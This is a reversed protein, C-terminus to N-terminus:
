LIHTKLTLVAFGVGHRIPRRYANLDHAQTSIGITDGAMRLAALV